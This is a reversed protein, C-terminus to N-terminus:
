AYIYVGQLMSIEIVDMHQLLYHFPIFRNWADSLDINSFPVSTHCPCANPKNCEVCWEESIVVPGIFYQRMPCISLVCLFRYNNHKPTKHGTSIVVGYFCGIGFARKAHKIVKRKCINSRWLKVGPSFQQELYIGTKSGMWDRRKVCWASSTPNTRWRVSM